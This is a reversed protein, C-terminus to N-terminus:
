AMYWSAMASHIDKTFNVAKGQERSIVVISMGDITCSLPKYGEVRGRQRGM